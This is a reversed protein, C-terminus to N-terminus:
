KEGELEFGLLTACMDRGISYSEKNVYESFVKLRAKAEVLSKYEETTITVTEQM